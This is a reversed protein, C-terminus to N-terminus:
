LRSIKVGESNGIRAWDWDMPGFKRAAEEGLKARLEESEILSCMM